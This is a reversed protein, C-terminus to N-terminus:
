QHSIFIRRNPSEGSSSRPPRQLILLNLSYALGNPLVVCSSIMEDQYRDDYRRNSCSQGYTVSGSSRLRGCGSQRDRWFFLFGKGIFPLAKQMLARQFRPLNSRVSDEQSASKVNRTAPGSKRDWRFKVIRIRKGANKM